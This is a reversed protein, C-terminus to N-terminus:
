MNYNYKIDVWETKTDKSYFLDPLEVDLGNQCYTWVILDETPL